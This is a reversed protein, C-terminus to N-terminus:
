LEVTPVINPPPCEIALLELTSTPLVVNVNVLPSIHCFGILASIGADIKPPPKAIRPLTIDPLTVIFLLALM